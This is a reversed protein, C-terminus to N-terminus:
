KNILGKIVVLNEIKSKLIEKVVITFLDKFYTTLTLYVISRILIIIKYLDLIIILINM